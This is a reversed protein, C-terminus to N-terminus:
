LCENGVTEGKPQELWKLISQQTLEEIQQQLTQTLNQLNEIKDLMEKNTDKNTDVEPNLIEPNEIPIKENKREEARKKLYTQSPTILIRSKPFSEIICEKKDTIKNKRLIKQVNGYIEWVGDEDKYTRIKQNYQIKKNM